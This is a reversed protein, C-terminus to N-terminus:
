ILLSDQTCLYAAINATTRFCPRAFLSRIKKKGLSHFTGNGVGGTM